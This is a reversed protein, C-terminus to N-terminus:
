PTDEPGPEGPTASAVPRRRLGRRYRPAKPYGLLWGWRKGHHQELFRAAAYYVTGFSLVLADTIMDEDLDLGYRAGQATLVGVLLPIFTRWLSLLLTYRADSM